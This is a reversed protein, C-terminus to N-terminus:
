RYNVFQLEIPLNAARIKQIVAQLDDLKKGFVRIEEGQIQAQVKLGSAKILKTIEKAKEQPIGQKLTVLQKLNGGLAEEAKGYEFFKLPVKRKVLKDQLINVVNKLKFEDEATIKLNDGDKEIKSISGKFDFRTSLEKLAMALANDIEQLNPKSVIDFSHDQAM